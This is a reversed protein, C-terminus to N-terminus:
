QKVQARPRGVAVDSTCLVAPGTIPGLQITDFRKDGARFYLYHLGQRIETSHSMGGASVEIAGNGTALYGVRVWWGGFIVPGDLVVQERFRAVRHPCSSKPVPAARRAVALAAPRLTGDEAVARLSEDGADVFQLDPRVPRVLHSTLNAPFAIPWAVYTPAPSDIVAAGKPLLEASSTLNRVWTVAASSGTNWHHVYTATSYVSMAVVATCALAAPRWRDLLGSPGIAEVQEVAGRIPMVALALAMPTAMAMEQIYRYESGFASRAATVLLVDCALFYAPLLIARLSHTRTRVVERVVLGLLLLCLVVLISAPAAAPTPSDNEPGWSLPGGFVGTAWARLVMTELVPGIPTSGSKGPSFNLGHTVYLALYSAGLAANVLVSFRYRQWAQGLRERLSGATFYALTVFALAGIILLARESFALAVAICVPAMLGPVRRRTRLYTIQFALGWSLAALMPFGGLGVVWWVTGQVAFPSVLYLALPPVIGWRLGFAVVLFRLMGFAAVAQVVVMSTAALTYDMPATRLFWWMMGLRGPIVHGAYSDLLGGLSHGGSALVRDMVVLDDGLWWSHYAVWARGLLQAAILTLAVWLVRRSSRRPERRARAGTSEQLSTGATM